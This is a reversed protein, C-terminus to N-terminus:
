AGGGELGRGKVYHCLLGGFPGAWKLGARGWYGRGKVYHCLLGGFQEARKLGTWAGGRCMNDYRGM